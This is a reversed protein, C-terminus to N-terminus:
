PNKQAYVAAYDVYTIMVAWRGTSAMDSWNASPTVSFYLSRAANTAALIPGAGAATGIIESTDDCATAENALETGGSSTGWQVTATTAGTTGEFCRIQWGTLEAYAPLINTLTIVQETTNAADDDFQYDDTSADDDLDITKVVTKVASFMDDVTIATSNGAALSYDATTCLGMDNGSVNCQSWAGTTVAVRIGNVVTASAKNGTVSVNTMNAGTAIGSLDICWGSVGTFVNDAIHGNIPAQNFIIGSPCTRFVNGSIEAFVQDANGNAHYIGATALNYFENGTVQWRYASRYNWSIGYTLNTGGGIFKCNRVACDLTLYTTSGFGIGAGAWDLFTCGDWVVRESGSGTFLFGKRFTCNQFHAGMSQSVKVTGAFDCGTIATDNRTTTGLLYNDGTSTAVVNAMRFSSPCNALGQYLDSVTSSDIRTDTIAFGDLGGYNIGYYCGTLHCGHITINQDATGVAIGALLRYAAGYATAPDYYTQDNGCAIFSTGEVFSNYCPEFDIGSLASKTATCNTFQVNSPISATGTAVAYCHRGCTTVYCNSVVVNKTTEGADAHQGGIYIGDGRTNGGSAIEEVYCNDILIDNTAGTTAQVLIGFGGYGADSTPDGVSKVVGMHRIRVNRVSCHTANDLLIGFAGDIGTYIDTTQGGGDLLLDAVHFNSKTTATILTIDSAGAQIISAQGAGILNVNSAGTLGTHVLYTGVPFFVTGGGAGSVANIAAQIAVSDNTTGDGTAGFWQPYFQKVQSLTVTTFGSFVQYLGAEFPGSITLTYTSAKVVSGGKHIVVGLTAPFVANATLTEADWIHLEGVTAGIATIAAALNAYNRNDYLTTGFSQFFNSFTGWKIHADDTIGYPTKILYFIDNAAPATVEPFDSVMQGWALSSSLLITAILPILCKRSM